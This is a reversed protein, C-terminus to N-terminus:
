RSGFGHFAPESREHRELKWRSVTNSDNSFWCSSMPLGHGIPPLDVTDM